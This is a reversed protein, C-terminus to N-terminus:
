IFFLFSNWRTTILTNIVFVLYYPLKRDKAPISDKDCSVFARNEAFTM